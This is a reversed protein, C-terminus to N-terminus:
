GLKVYVGDDPPLGDDSWEIFMGETAAPQRRRSQQFDAWWNEWEARALQTDRHAPGKKISLLKWAGYWCLAPGLERPANLIDSDASLRDVRTYITLRIDFDTAAGSDPVPYLIITADDFTNKATWMQPRGTAAQKGMGTLGRTRKNWEEWPVYDLRNSVEGDTNILQAERVAFFNIPLAVTATGDVLNADAVTESGFDILHRANFRDIGENIARGAAELVATKNRGGVYDASCQKLTLFSDVQPQNTASADVQVVLSGITALAM